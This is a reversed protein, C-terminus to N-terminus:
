GSTVSRQAFNGLLEGTAGDVEKSLLAHDAIPTTSM